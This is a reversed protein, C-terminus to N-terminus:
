WEKVQSEGGEPIIQLMVERQSEDWRDDWGAQSEGWLQSHLAQSSPATVFEDAVQSFQSQEGGYYWDGVATQQSESFDYHPAPSISIQIEEPLGSSPFNLPTPLSNHSGSRVHHALLEWPQPRVPSESLRSLVMLATPRQEPQTSYCEQILPLIILSEEFSCRHNEIPPPRADQTLVAMMVNRTLLNWFPRKGSVLEYVTMGFSWMDSAPTRASRIDLGFRTPDMREPAMWPMSGAYLMSTMGPDIDEVVTSLGFDALLAHGDDSVLINNGKIDGHVVPPSQSHLYDLGYAIGLILKSVLAHGEDNDQWHQELFSMATGNSQWPSVMCLEQIGWKTSIGLLPLLNDHRLMSWIRIESRLRKLLKDIPAVHRRLIKLAVIHSQRGESLSGRWVDAFAGGGAAIAELKDVRDALDSTYDLLPQLLSQLVADDM